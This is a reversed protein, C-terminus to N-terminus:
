VVGPSSFECKIDWIEFVSGTGGSDLYAELQLYIKDGASYSIAPTSVGLDLSGSASAVISGSSYLSTPTMSANYRIITLVVYDAGLISWNRSIKVSQLTTFDPIDLLWRMVGQEVTNGTFHLFGNGNAAAFARQARNLPYLNTTNTNGVVLGSGPDIPHYRTKPTNYLFDGEAYVNGVSSQVSAAVLPGTLTAQVGTLSGIITLDGGISADDGVMLDDTAALDAGQVTQNSTINQTTTIVRSQLDDFVAVGSSNLDTLWLKKWRLLSGGLDYLNSTNPSFDGLMKRSGDLAVLQKLSKDISRWWGTPSTEGIIDAIQRQVARVFRRLSKVGHLSRDNNRDNGGGWEADPVEYNIVGIDNGEFFFDRYDFLTVAAGTKQAAAVLVWEPGPSTPGVTMVWDEARRVTINRPTEVPTPASPNFFLRNSFVSNRFEGRVYVYYIGNPYGAIDRSRSVTGGTLLLGLEAVGKERVGLLATGSHITIVTGPLLGYGDTSEFGHLIFNKPATDTGETGVLLGEAVSQVFQRIETSLHEFDGHEVREGIETNLLTKTTMM